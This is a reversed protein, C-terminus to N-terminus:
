GPPTLRRRYESPTIGVLRRFLKRFSAPDTYGVSYAIDDIPRHSLAMAEKAMEIRIEQVYRVPSVGTVSQFRRAFTRELLASQVRAQAVVDPEAAHDLIWRQAKRIVSDAHQRRDQFLAYPSQDDRGWELLYLKAAQAAADRGLFRAILYLLLEQWLTGGGATVIRHERGALVMARDPCLRTGPYCRAFTGAYAWHTTAPEGELLGAAALVLSGSCATAIVAGREYQRVLWQCIAPDTPPVEGDPPGLAPVYVIDFTEADSLAVTPRVSVGNWGMVPRTTRGVTRVRVRPECAIRETRKDWRIGASSLIDHAGYLASAHVSPLTLIAVEIMRQSQRPGLKRKTDPDARDQGNRRKQM